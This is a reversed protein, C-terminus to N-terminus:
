SKGEVKAILQKLVYLRIASSLNGHDRDLDIREILASLNETKMRTLLDWFEREMTVSTKHGNLTVSHKSIPSAKM